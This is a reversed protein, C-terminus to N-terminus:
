KTNEEEVVIQKESKRRQEWVPEMTLKPFLRNFWGIFRGTLLVSLITGIGVTSVTGTFILDVAIAISVYIADAIIKINSLKKGSVQSITHTLEDPAPLMLDCGVIMQVGLGSLALGFILIVARLVISLEAAPFVWMFLDIVWGFPVGVLLTLVAKLTVRRLVLVQGIVCLGHLLTTSTGLTLPTINSVAAPVSTIPSIGLEVRKLCVVGLAMVVLGLAYQILRRAFKEKNM